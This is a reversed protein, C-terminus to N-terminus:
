VLETTDLNRKKLSSSILVHAMFGLLLLAFLIDWSIKFILRPLNPSLSWQLSLLAIRAILLLAVYHVPWNHKHFLSWWLLSVAAIPGTGMFIVWSYSPSFRDGIYGGNLFINGPDIDRPHNFGDIQGLAAWWTFWTVLPLLTLIVMRSTERHISDYKNTLVNWENKLFSEVSAYMIATVALAWGGWSMGLWFFIALPILDYTQESKKYTLVLGSLICGIIGLLLIWDVVNNELYMLSPISAFGIVVAMRHSSKKITANRSVFIYMAILILISGFLISLLTGKFTFYIMMRPLSFGIVRYHSLFLTPILVIAYTAKLMVSTRKDSEAKTFIPMLLMFPLMFGLTSFRTEVYTLMFVVSALLLATLVKSRTGNKHTLLYLALGAVIYPALVGLFLYTNELLERNFAISSSIAFITALVAGSGLTVRLDFGHKRLLYMIGICIMSFLSGSLILDSNRLGLDESSIKEWEIVETSLGEVYPYENDEMWQNREVTANWNWQNFVQKKEETVDLADLPFEGHIAHPLPLSLLLSPLTALDRQDIEAVTVGKAIHPGWVFAGVNRIEDAPSGHQGSDTLGHDTTIVVTWNEPVKAFVEAMEDDLWQLKEEYEPSDKTGYRHGISDLGALHAIIVNPTREFTVDDRTNSEPIDGDLWSNLTEFSEIDGKMYDAHEHRLIMLNMLDNEKYLDVWVYPGVIGVDNDPQGDGDGDYTSALAWGDPTGPHEPHFNSLGENPRSPIGTAMEKVCSATMTLPNTKVNIYAGDKVRENLLPMFESDSMMDERAGDLVIFLLGESLREDPYPPAELGEKPAPADSIIYSGTYLFSPLALIAVLGIIQLLLRMHTARNPGNLEGM